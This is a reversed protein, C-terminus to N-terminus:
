GGCALSTGAIVMSDTAIAAYRTAASSNMMLRAPSELCSDAFFPMQYPMAPMASATPAVMPRATESSMVVIPAMRITTAMRTPATM